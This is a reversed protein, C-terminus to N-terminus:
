EAGGEEAEPEAEPEPEPQPALLLTAGAEVGFGELTKPDAGEEPAEEVLPADGAGLLMMGETPIPGKKAGAVKALVQEPTDTPVYLVRCVPGPEPEQEAGEEKVV